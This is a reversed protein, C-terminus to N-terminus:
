ERFLLLQIWQFLAGAAFGGTLVAPWGWNRWLDGIFSVPLIVLPPAYRSEMYERGTLVCFLRIYRGELFEPGPFEAFALSCANASALVIRNLLVHEIGDLVDSVTAESTYQYASILGAVSLALLLVLACRLLLQPSLLRSGNAIMVGFLVMACLVVTPGRELTITNVALAVGFTFVFERRWRGHGAYSMFYFYLVCLPLLLSRSLAFALLLLRPTESALFRLSLDDIRDSYDFFLKLIPIFECMAVYVAAIAVSIWFVRYVVRSFQVDRPMVMIPSRSYSEVQKQPTRFLLSAAIVGAPFTLLVSDVALLYTGRVPSEMEVYVYLSALSMLAFYTAYFVGPLTLRTFSLSPGLAWKMALGGVACCAFAVLAGRDVAGSLTLWAILATLAIACAGNESTALSGAGERALPRRVAGLPNAAQHRPTM